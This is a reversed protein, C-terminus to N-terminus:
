QSPPCDACYQLEGTGKFYAVMYTVDLGNVSCSGNADAAPYIQGHPDCICIDVPAPGGKFYNVLYIVDLGNAGGSGNADGPVYPCDYEELIVDVVTTNSSVISIGEVTTDRYGSLSFSIDYLGEGLDTILYEGLNDTTDSKGTGPLEVLVGELANSDPDTVTGQVNGYEFIRFYVINDSYIDPAHGNFARVRCYYTTDNFLCVPSTWSTDSLAGSLLPSPFLPSLDIEVEYSVAFGSDPDDSAEWEFYPFCTRITDGPAPAVLSFPTLVYAETLDSINIMAGQLIRRGIDSQVFVVIECNDEILQSSLTFDQNFNSTDGQSITFGLGSTSPVMDRFVNDHYRGGYYLHNETVALRLRLNTEVVQGTAIIGVALSVEGSNSNYTGSLDIELPSDVSLESSVLGNWTNYYYQGDV